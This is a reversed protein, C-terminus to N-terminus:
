VCCCIECIINFFVNVFVVNSCDYKDVKLFSEVIYIVLKEYFSFNGLKVDLVM